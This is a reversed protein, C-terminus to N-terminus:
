DGAGPADTPGGDPSAGEPSGGDPSGGDPSGTPTDVPVPPDGDPAGIGSTPPDLIRTCVTVERGGCGLGFDAYSSAPPAAHLLEDCAAADGGGCADWLEDLAADTGPPPDSPDFREAPDEGGPVVGPEVTAGLCRAVAQQVVQQDAADMGAPRQVDELDLEVQGTVSAVICDAEAATFGADAVLAAALEDPDAGGGGGCGALALATVVCGALVVRARATTAPRTRM